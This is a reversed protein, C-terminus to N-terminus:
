PLARGAMVGLSRGHSFVIEGNVLVALIGESLQKPQEYTARDRVTGPDFVVLDAAKGRKIEGRDRLGFRRAPLATMRNILAELPMFKHERQLRLFRTFCGYTRPHPHPASNISDSGVMYNPRKILEMIDRDIQEWVSQQPPRQMFGVALNNRFLLECILAATDMRREAAVEEFARGVLDQDPGEPLYTFIGDQVLGLANMDEAICSRTAPDALRAMLAAYGGAHAWRPIMYLAFGAGAPYPYCELSIDVGRAAAADLSDMLQEVQGPNHAGTRYHSIHLPAGSREAITIAEAVPDFPAEPFVTRVHIVFPRQYLAAVKCLEILEETDAYSCPYYSLGTSFAVAGQDFGEALLAQARKLNEGVLPVDSFGVTELRLAGHPVVYATNVSATRHFLQRFEAVGARKIEVPPNGNLGALYRRYDALNAPSLPAYSLGDQGLLETTIGQSSAATRQPDALLHLDSHTHTDIFGPCVAKGDAEIVLDVEVAQLNGVEAIRGWKVLVDAKFPPGGTGDIVTGGRILVSKSM